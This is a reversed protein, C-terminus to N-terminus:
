TSGFLKALRLAPEKFLENLSIDILFLDSFRHCGAPVTLFIMFSDVCVFTPEFPFLRAIIM